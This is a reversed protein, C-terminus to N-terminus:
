GCLNFFKKLTEVFFTKEEPELFMLHRSDKMSFFEKEVQSFKGGYSEFPGFLSKEPVNVDRTGAIMLLPTKLASLQERLDLRRLEPWLAQSIRHQTELSRGPNDFSYGTIEAVAQPDFNEYPDGYLEAALNQLIILDDLEDFPPEGLLELQRFVDPDAKDRPFRLVMRCTEKQMDSVCVAPAAAAIKEVRDEGFRSLYLFALAGGWSHGLLFLKEIRFRELVSEVAQHVDSAHRRLTQTELKENKSNLVGRQHLYVMTCHKELEMGPYAQFAALNAASGPGGHLYFLVPGGPDRGKQSRKKGRAEVFLQVDDEANVWFREFM